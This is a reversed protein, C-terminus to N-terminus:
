NIKSVIGIIWSVFFVAGNGILLAIFLYLMSSKLKQRNMPDGLGFVLSIGLIILAIVGVTDVILVLFKVISRSVDKFTKTQENLLGSNDDENLYSVSSTPKNENGDAAYSVCLMAFMTVITMILVMSTRTVLSKKM